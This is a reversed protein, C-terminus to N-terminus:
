KINMSDMPSSLANNFDKLYETLQKINEGQDKLLVKVAGELKKFHKTVAIFSINFPKALDSVSMEGDTLMFFIKRRVPHALAQFILSLQDPTKQHPIM